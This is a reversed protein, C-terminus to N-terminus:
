IFTSPPLSVEDMEKGQDSFYYPKHVMVRNRGESKAQYLSVDSLQIVKYLSDGDIPFAAVGGSISLCGLPQKERHPFPHESIKERVRNAYIFADEKSIGPLMVIFEEGGYRAFVANKRTIGEVIQSLEILLKDGADHGNTDNYHKFNDIDFLFVSIPSGERIAKEVSTQAMQFFYNRNSLGTLPDTNAKHKAEGLMATNVLTVAAIDAIMKMINSENGTPNKIKGIGIVGLLREKFVIPVAMWIPSGSHAADKESAASRNFHGNFRVIRDQGALGVLGEGIVYSNKENQIDSQLHAKKLINDSADLMYIEVLDTLIIDKVLNVISLIIEESRMTSNLRQVTMPIKFMFSLYRSNLENLNDLRAHLERIEQDRSVIERAYAADQEKSEIKQGEQRGVSKGRRYSIVSIIISALLASGIVFYNV